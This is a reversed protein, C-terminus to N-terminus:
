LHDKKYVILIINGTKINRFYDNEVNECRLGLNNLIVEADDELVKEVM